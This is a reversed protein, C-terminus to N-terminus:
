QPDRIKHQQTLPHTLSYVINQLPNLSNCKQRLRHEKILKTYNSYYYILREAHIFPLTRFALLLSCDFPFLPNRSSHTLYRSIEDVDKKIESTRWDDDWNPPHFTMIIIHDITPYGLCRLLGLRLRTHSSNSKTLSKRPSLTKQHLAKILSFGPCFPVPRFPENAEETESILIRNGNRELGTLSGLDRRGRAAEHIMTKQLLVECQPHETTM